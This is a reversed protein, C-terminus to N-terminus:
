TYGTIRKSNNRERERDTDNFRKGFVTDFVSLATHVFKFCQTQLTYTVLWRICIESWLHINNMFRGQEVGPNLAPFILCFLRINSSYMIDAMALRSGSYPPLLLIVSNHQSDFVFFQWLCCCHLALQVPGYAIKRLVAENM